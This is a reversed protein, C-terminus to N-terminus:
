AQLGTRHLLSKSEYFVRMLGVGARWIEWSADVVDKCLWKWARGAVRHFGSERSKVTPICPGRLACSEM